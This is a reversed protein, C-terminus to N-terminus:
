KAAFISAMTKLLLDRDLPKAIYGNMGAQKGADVDEKFVNASMAVIPVLGGGEMLRIQRTATLGDMEPMQIDMFVLDYKGPNAAFTNCAIVGNEACDIHINTSELFALVIERNIEADDVLLIHKGSFDLSDIDEKEIAVTETAIPVTAVLTFTFSTGGEPNPTCWITGGMLEVLSKSISLGLGTGGFKRSIGSDAQVFSHFLRQAAEPSIGIGTDSVRTELTVTNESCHAICVTVTISGGEPTFKIANSVLNNVVQSYRFGDSEITQPVADDVHITLALQKEDAKGGLLYTTNELTGRPAFPAINLEIKNAEIKAMDLIDNILGLLTKSAYDVRDLCDHIKANDQTRQAIQVMGIIANMPTRIEHSM